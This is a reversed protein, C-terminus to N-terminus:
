GKWLAEDANDHIALISSLFFLGKQKKVKQKTKKSVTASEHKRKAESEPEAGAEVVAVPSAPMTSSALIAGNFV